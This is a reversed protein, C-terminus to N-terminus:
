EEGDLLTWLYVELAFCMNRLVFFAEAMEDFRTNLQAKIEQQEQASLFRFLGSPQQDM